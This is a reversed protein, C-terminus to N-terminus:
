LLIDYASKKVDEYNIAFKGYILETRPGVKTTSVFSVFGVYLVKYGIFKFCLQVYSINIVNSEFYFM